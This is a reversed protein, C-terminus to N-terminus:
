KFYEYYGKINIGKVSGFTIMDFDSPHYATVSLVEEGDNVYIENAMRDVYLDLRINEEKNVGVRRIGQSSKEEKNSLIPIYTNTRSLLVEGDCYKVEIFHNDKKLFKVSLDSDSPIDIQLHLCNGKLGAITQEEKIYCEFTKKDGFYNNLSLIPKQILKGNEYLLRRPITFANSWKGNTEWFPFTREWLQLWGIMIDGESIIQPAYFDFGHDIERIEKIDINNIMNDTTLYISSYINWFDNGRPSLGQPSLILLRKDNIKMSTPCEIMYGLDNSEIIKRNFQWHFLDISEFLLLTAKESKSKNGLMLYYKGEAKFVSPDRFDSISCDVPLHTESIIPNHEYKEFNIGDKSIVLNQTQISNGKINENGTYFIYLIDDKVISSGSWCGSSDYDSDHTFADPLLKFKILDESIAHGWSMTGPFPGDGYHQFFLHYLGKFYVFGNPDNIWGNATFHYNPLYENSNRIDM